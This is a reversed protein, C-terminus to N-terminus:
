FGMYVFEFTNVHANNTDLVMQTLVFGNENYTCEFNWSQNDYEWTGGSGNGWDTYRNTTQLHEVPNNTSLYEMTPDTVWFREVVNPYQEFSVWNSEYSSVGSGDSYNYKYANVNGYSDFTFEGNFPAAGRNWKVKQISGSNDYSITYTKLYPTFDCWEIKNVKNNAGYYYKTTKSMGQAVWKRTM